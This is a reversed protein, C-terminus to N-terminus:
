VGLRRATRLLGIVSFAHVIRGDEAAAVAVELPLARVILDGEAGDRQHRSQAPALGRALYLHYQATMSASGMGDGLSEWSAAQLGVEEALERRAGQLAEEGPECVGAPIEWSNRGWPYRWQRVLYVSRREGDDGVPVIAVIPRPFEVFTYRGPAGDPQVVEDERLRLRGNDYVVRTSLTHWPSPGGVDLPDDTM